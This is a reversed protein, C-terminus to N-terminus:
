AGKKEVWGNETLELEAVFQNLKPVRLKNPFDVDEKLCPYLDRVPVKFKLMRGEHIDFFSFAIWPNVALHLGRGCEDDYEPDWDPAIIEERSYDITNSHFDKYNTRVWKYLYVYDGGIEAGAWKLWEKVNKVELIRKIVKSDGFTEFKAKKSFSTGRSWNYFTGSSFDFLNGSSSHFFKGKARRVLDGSTSNLFIGNSEDSFFGYSRSSLVGISKNFFNAKSFNKLVGRSRDFFMGESFDMLYGKADKRFRGHAHASLTARGGYLDVKAHEMAHVESPELFTAYARGYVNAKCEAEALVVSADFVQLNAKKFVKVKSNGLVRIRLNSPVDRLEIELDKIFILDGEKLSKFDKESRIDKAEM